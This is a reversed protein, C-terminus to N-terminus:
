VVFMGNEYIVKKTGDKLVATVTRNTTSVMDTHEASDNYGLEQWEADSLKSPDELYCDRYAKGIAVHTNGYPGGINEDFLTEAMSHSIRSTRKDTLSVEGLKDANTSKLMEQLFKNGVQAKASIVHGREFTMEIDRIIQGYRYLPQNFRIWGKTGRWDPSTFIEFSPINRGEGGKWLRKQGINIQLDMDKGKFLLWDIPLANLKTKVKEQLRAVKRWEKIPEAKDLFCAKIIQQWYSELSLGVEKAKAEVGWLAVTWTFKGANEKNDFWDRIAKKSDRALLIKRPKVKALEEPYPDGIIGITHDILDVQVKHYKRPFFTLQEENALTYYDKDFGTPLLRMFPHAGAKLVANQLALALPKAVDPVVVRVVEGKKVGTGGHLAFNVLVDAYRRIIKPPPTYLKQAMKLITQILRYQDITVCGRSRMKAIITGVHIHRGEVLGRWLLFGRRPNEAGLDLAEDIEFVFFDEIISPKKRVNSTQFIQFFHDAPPRLDFM